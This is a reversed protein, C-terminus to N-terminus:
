FLFISHFSNSNCGEAVRYGFTDYQVLVVVVGDRLTTEDFYELAFAAAFDVVVPTESTGDAVPVQKEVTVGLLDGARCVGDDLIAAIVAVEIPLAYGLIWCAVM